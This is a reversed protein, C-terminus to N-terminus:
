VLNFMESVLIDDKSNIISNEVVTNIALKAIYDSLEKKSKSNIFEQAKRVITDDHWTLNKKAL